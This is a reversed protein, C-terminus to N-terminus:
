PTTSSGPGPLLLMYTYDQYSILAQRLGILMDIHYDQYSLLLRRLPQLGVPPSVIIGRGTRAQVPNTTYAHGSRTRTYSGGGARRRGGDGGISSLAPRACCPTVLTLPLDILVKACAYLRALSHPARGSQM